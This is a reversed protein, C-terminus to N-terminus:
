ESNKFIVKKNNNIIYCIIIKFDLDKDRLSFLLVITLGM